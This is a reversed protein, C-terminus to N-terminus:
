QVLCFESNENDEVKSSGEENNSLQLQQLEVHLSTEDENGAKVNTNEKESEMKRCSCCGKKIEKKLMLCEKELETVRFRIKQLQIQVEEDNVECDEASKSSERLRLQGVFLVQVTVRVPLRENQAAHECAELSM